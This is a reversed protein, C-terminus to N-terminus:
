FRELSQFRQTIMELKIIPASITLFRDLVSWFRNKKFRDGLALNKFFLKTISLLNRGIFNSCIDDFIPRFGTEFLSFDTYFRGFDTYFRSFGTKWIPGVIEIFKTDFFNVFYNKFSFKPNRDTHM